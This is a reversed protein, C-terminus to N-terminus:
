LDHELGRQDLRDFVHCDGPPADGPQRLKTNLVGQIATLKDLNPVLTQRRPQLDPKESPMPVSADFTVGQPLHQRVGGVM